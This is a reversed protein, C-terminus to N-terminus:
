QSRACVCDGRRHKAITDDRIDYGKSKFWRVILLTSRGQNLAEQLNVRDQDAMDSMFRAVKCLKPHSSRELADFESLDPKPARM